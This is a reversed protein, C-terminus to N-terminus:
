FFKLLTCFVLLVLLNMQYARFSLGLASVYSVYIIDICLDNLMYNLFKIHLFLVIAVIEM